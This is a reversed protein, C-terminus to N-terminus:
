RKVPTLLCFINYTNSFFEARFLVKDAGGRGSVAIETVYGDAIDRGQQTVVAVAEPPVAGNVKEFYTTKFTPSAICYRVTWNPTVNEDLIEAKKFVILMAPRFNKEVLRRATAEFSARYQTALDKVTKSNIQRSNAEVSSRDGLFLLEAAFENAEKEMVLRTAFSLGIDDCVYLTHEHHPLVYHGIEHLVSFRTRKEDLSDDTAVLRDAFSLLARPAGGASTQTAEQPLERAFDFSLYELKLFDLLERPNVCERDCQGANRLLHRVLERPEIELYSASFGTM